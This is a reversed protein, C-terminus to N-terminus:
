FFYFGGFHSGLWEPLTKQHNEATKLEFFFEVPQKEHNEATKMPDGRHTKALIGFINKQDLFM